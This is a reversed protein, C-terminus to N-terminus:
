QKLPNTRSNDQLPLRGFEIKEMAEGDWAEFVAVATYESVHVIHSLSWIPNAGLRNCVNEISEIQPNFTIHKYRNM